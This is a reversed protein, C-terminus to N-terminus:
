SPNPCGLSAAHSFAFLLYDLTWFALSLFVWFLLRPASDFPRSPRNAAPM